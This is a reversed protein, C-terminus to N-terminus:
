HRPSPSSAKKTVRNTASRFRENHEQDLRLERNIENELAIAALNDTARDIVRKSGRVAGASNAAIQHALAIAAPWVEGVPKVHNIFGARAAEAADIVAASLIWEKAKAPGVLRPLSSGAVVLGYEAGPFRYTSTDSGYRIDLLCALQAGGGYCFGEIAGILPKQAVTCVTFLRGISQSRAGGAGNDMRSVAESMDAGACFSKPTSGGIVIARIAEDAEFAEVADAVGDALASNLANRKEPRNLRVIGVPGDIEVIVVDSM